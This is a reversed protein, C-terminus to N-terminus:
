IILTWVFVIVITLWVVGELVQSSDIKRKMPLLNVVSLGYEALRRRAIFENSAYITGEQQIGKKNIGSYYFRKM